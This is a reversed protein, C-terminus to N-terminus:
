NESIDTFFCNWTYIKRKETVSGKLPLKYSIFIKNKFWHLTNQKPHSSRQIISENRTEYLILNDFIKFIM